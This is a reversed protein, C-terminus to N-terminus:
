FCFSCLQLSELTCDCVDEFPDLLIFIDFHLHEAQGLSALFFFFSWELSFSSLFAWIWLRKESGIQFHKRRNYCCKINCIIRKAIGLNAITFSFFITQAFLIVFISLDLAKKESGIQFHKRKNCCFKFICVNKKTM